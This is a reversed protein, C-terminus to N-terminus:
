QLPKYSKAELAKMPLSQRPRNVTSRAAASAIRPQPMRSWIASKAASSAAAITPMRAAWENGRRTYIRPEADFHAQVRYGDHKIEHIWGSGTPPRVAGVPQAPVIFGIPKM